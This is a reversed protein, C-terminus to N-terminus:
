KGTKEKLFILFSLPKQSLNTVMIIQQIIYNGYSNQALKETHPAIRNLLMSYIAPTNQFREYLVKLVCLGQSHTAFEYISPLIESLIPELVDDGFAKLVKQLFHTGFQDLAVKSVRGELVLVV